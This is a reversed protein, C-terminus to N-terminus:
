RGNLPGVSHTHVFDLPFRRGALYDDLSRMVLPTRHRARCARLEEATFYFDPYVKRSLEVLAPIDTHVAPRVTLKEKDLKAM